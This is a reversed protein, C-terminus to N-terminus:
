AAARSAEAALAAQHTKSYPKLLALASLFGLVAVPAAVLIVSERVMAPDKLVYDTILAVLTPAVGLGILNAALQYYAVIQGRMENPAMETLAAYSSGNVMNGLLPGSFAFALIAFIPADLRWWLFLQLANLPYCILAVGLRGCSPWRRVLRDGLAGGLAAGISGIILLVGGIILGVEAPPVKHVRLLIVPIWVSASYGVVMNCSYTLYGLGIAAKRRLAFRLFSQAQQGGRAQERREPERVTLLLAAVLFGPAGVIFFVLQWASVAGLVPLVAHGEPGLAQLVLGGVVTSGASGLSTGAVMTGMAFGRRQPRILDAVLSFSAPALCAEGVGVFIRAFFLEHFSGALGCGMTALSWCLIGFALINRRNARDVLRGIPVGAIVFFISFALGQILSAQTDSLGLDHRLPEILISIIQRDLYALMWGVTLIGVVTWARAESQGASWAAAAPAASEAKVGPVASM